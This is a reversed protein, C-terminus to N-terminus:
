SPEYGYPLAYAIEASYGDDAVAVVDGRVMRITYPGGNVKRIPVHQEAGVVLPALINRESPHTTVSYTASTTLTARCTDCTGGQASERVSDTQRMDTKCENCKVTYRAM